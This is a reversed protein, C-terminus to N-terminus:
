GGKKIELLEMEFILTSNPEVPGARKDGYALEPPVFLRWRAGEKMRQLAETWGRIVGDVPFTPPTERKASSEFETGDILTGRYHVSVTDELGPRRGTGPKSISYQLGSPLVVVGNKRANGALFARGATLNAKARAQMEEERRASLTKQLDILALGMERRTMLPTTGTMADRLGQLLMESNVTKGEKLLDRGVQYGTSYSTRARDSELDTVNGAFGARAVIMACFVMLVIRGM